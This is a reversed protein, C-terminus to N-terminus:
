ARLLSFRIWLISFPAYKGPKGPMPMSHAPSKYGYGDENTNINQGNEMLVHHRNYVKEGNTYFQLQGTSDCITACTASFNMDYEQHIELEPRNGARFDLIANGFEDDPPSQLGGSHGFIWFYDNKQSYLVTCCVAFLVLLLHKKM